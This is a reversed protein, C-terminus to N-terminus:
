LLNLIYFNILYPHFFIVVDNKAIPWIIQKLSMQDTPKSQNQGADLLAKM